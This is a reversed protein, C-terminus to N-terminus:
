EGIVSTEGIAVYHVRDEPDSIVTPPERLVGETTVAIKLDRVTANPSVVLSLRNASERILRYQEPIAGFVEYREIPQGFEIKLNLPEESPVQDLQRAPRLHIIAPVSTGEDFLNSKSSDPISSSFAGDVFLFYRPSRDKLARVMRDAQRQSVLQAAFYLLIATGIGLLFGVALSKKSIPKKM